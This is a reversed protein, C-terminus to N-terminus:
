IAFMELQEEKIPLEEKAYWRASDSLYWADLFQRPTDYFMDKGQAQRKHFLDAIGKEYRDFFKPWHDRYRQHIRGTRESHYPCVVCGIRDFGWDYLVPYPLKQERIFEWIEWEQWHFIPYYHTHGLKKFYNIRGYKSRKSSEEARIGMARKTHPLRLGPAKKLAYCCWRLNDSPPANTSLNKWFTRLPTLFKCNPYERRIFQIVEPADLGTFSYYTEYKVGSMKFLHETVISDKGGSFGLFATENGFSEQIFGIAEQVIDAGFLDMNLTDLFYIFGYFSAVFYLDVDMGM